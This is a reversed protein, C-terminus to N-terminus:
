KNVALAILKTTTTSEGGIMYHQLHCLCAAESESLANWCKKEGGVAFISAAALFKVTCQLRRVRLFCLTVFYRRERAVNLPM